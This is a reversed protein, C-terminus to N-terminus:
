DYDLGHLDPPPPGPLPRSVPEVLDDQGPGSGQRHDLDPGTNGGSCTPAPRIRGSRGSGRGIARAPPRHCGPFPCRRVPAVQQGDPRHPHWRGTTMEANSTSSRASRSRPAPGPAGSASRNSPPRGTNDVRRHSTRAPTCPDDGRRQGRRLASRRAPRRAHGPGHVSPGAAPDHRRAGAACPPSHDEFAVADPVDAM